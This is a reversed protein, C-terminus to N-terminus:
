AEGAIDEILNTLRSVSAIIANPDKAMIGAALDALGAAFNIARKINLLVTIKKGAKTIIEKLQKAPDDLDEITLSVAATTVFSSARILTKFIENLIEYEGRTIKKYNADLYADINNAADLFENALARAEEKTLGTM